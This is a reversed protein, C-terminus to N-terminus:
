LIVELIDLGEAGSDLVDHCLRTVTEDLAWALPSAERVRVRLPVSVLNGEVDAFVGHVERDGAPRSSETRRPPRLGVRVTGGPALPVLLARLGQVASSGGDWATHEGEVPGPSTM